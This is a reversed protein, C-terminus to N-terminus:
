EAGRAIGNQHFLKKGFDFNQNEPRFGHVIFWPSYDMTQNKPTRLFNPSFSVVPFLMEVDASQVLEGGGGRERERWAPHHHGIISVVLPAVHQDMLGLPEVAGAEQHGVMIGTDEGCEVM